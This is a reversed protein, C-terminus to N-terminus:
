VWKIQYLSFNSMNEHVYIFFLYTVINEVKQHLSPLVPTERLQARGSLHISKGKLRQTLQAIVLQQGWPPLSAASTTITAHLTSAAQGHPARQATVRVAILHAIRLFPLGLISWTMLISQSHTHQVQPSSCPLHNGHCVCGCCCPLSLPRPERFGLWENYQGCTIYRGTSKQCLNCM